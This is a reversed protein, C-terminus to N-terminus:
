KAAAAENASLQGKRNGIAAAPYGNGATPWM